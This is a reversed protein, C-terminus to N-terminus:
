GDAARAARAAAALGAARRAEVAAAAEAGSCQGQTPVPIPKSQSPAPRVRGAMPQVPATLDPVGEGGPGVTIATGEPVPGFVYRLFGMVGPQRAPRQGASRPTQTAPVPEDPATRVYLFLLFLVIVACIGEVGAFIATVALALAHYIGLTVTTGFLEIPVGVRPRFGTTARDPVPASGIRRNHEYSAADAM